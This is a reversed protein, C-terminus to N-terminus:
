DKPTSVLYLWIFGAVGALSSAILIGTKAMLLLQENEGFGLQAVFISMTFGIGALLSVGAIQTFKTDKPLEALNLKLMLWSVGAIGIFKGLILGLMVGLTVPHLMTSVISSFDLGIGANALAFIPIVLYAVPIHWVHELRKLPVGVSEVSYELKHVVASLEDNTMISKGPQYSADFRQILKKVHESFRQPDYKPIAPVSMAGLIGALTPHVGSLLLAYWLFVAVIFYPATKRIGFMNFALLLSFLAAAITLPIVAITDTYFAAIVVVAGLDDVIALAVLFTILAKPVRSALLALAGIAFAIDTAMPIGWGIAADGEPNIAFYILAPVVMGGIAASIPLVANRITALEGVLIERKLELGVVFFFLAMLGDNIWHHLSMEVSWSGIGISIPTHLIHLYGSSLASNALILALVATGMLLLGSTTQRHIFEEFPTLLKDFSKEWPANYIGSTSNTKTTM